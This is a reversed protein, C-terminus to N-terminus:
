NVRTSTRAAEVVRRGDTAGGGKLLSELDGIFMELTTVGAELRDREFSVAKDAKALDLEHNLLDVVVKVASLRRTMTDLNGGSVKEM